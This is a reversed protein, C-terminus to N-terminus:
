DACSIQFHYTIIKDVVSKDGSVSAMRLNDGDAKGYKYNLYNRFKFNARLFNPKLAM